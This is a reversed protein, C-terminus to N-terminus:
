GSALVNADPTSKRIAALRPEFTERQGTWAPIIRVLLFGLALGSIFGAIASVDGVDGTLYDGVLAGCVALLLPLLYVLISGRLIASEPLEIEVEDDLACEGALVNPSALARVLGKGGAARAVVGQGCGAKAACSGCLSSRITEVWVADSEIAVVRGSERLM